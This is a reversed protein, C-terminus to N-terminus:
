QTGNNITKPKISLICYGKKCFRENDLIHSIKGHWEKGTYRKKEYDWEQLCIDDDVEFPRDNRRVEFTKVGSVIEEFYGIETKLAHLM